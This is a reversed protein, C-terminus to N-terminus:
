HFAGAECGRLPPAVLLPSALVYRGGSGRSLLGMLELRSLDHLVDEPRSADRCLREPSDCGSGVLELLRRLRPEVEPSRGASRRRPVAGPLGALLELIDEVSRVLTAGERVLAHPGAALPSTIQGPVAALMGGAAACVRAPALDREEGAEVVISVAAMAAPIREAARRGVVRGPCSGPLEALLCGQKALRGRLARLPGSCPAAPGAPLAAITAGGLEGAGELAAVPIDAALTATVTVGSAALGRGLQRAVAVGYDSARSPGHIAAVPGAALEALRTRGEDGLLLARPGWPALLRRPFGADHRCITEPAGADFAGAGRQALTRALEDRRRGGLAAVLEEDSLALVDLLRSLERGRRDLPGILEGLLWSRQLCEPCAAAM